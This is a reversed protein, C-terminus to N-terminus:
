ASRVASVIGAQCAIFPRCAPSGALSARASTSSASPSSGGSRQAGPRPRLQWRALLRPQAPDGALVGDLADLLLGTQQEGLDVRVALQRPAQAVVVRAHRGSPCVVAASCSVLSVTSRPATIYPGPSTRTSSRSAGAITSGVSAIMRTEAAQTHPESRHGYRPTSSRWHGAAIPWSYAPM